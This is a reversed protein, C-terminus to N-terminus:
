RAKMHPGLVPNTSASCSCARKQDASLPLRPNDKPYIEAEAWLQARISSATGISRGRGELDARLAHADFLYVNDIRWPRTQRKSSVAPSPPGTMVLYDHIVNSLTMDLLGERKLYWKINVKRGAVPSSRFVGDVAAAVASIELEIDFIKSAIWEGLHGAAMPRETIAAIKADIENRQRLLEAIEQLQQEM